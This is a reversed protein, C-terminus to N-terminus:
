RGQKCAICRVKTKGEQHTLLDIEHGCTLTAIQVQSGFGCAVKRVLFVGRMTGALSKGSRTSKCTNM